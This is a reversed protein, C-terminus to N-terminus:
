WNVSAGILAGIILVALMGVVVGGAVTAVSTRLGRYSPATKDTWREGDWFGLTRFM